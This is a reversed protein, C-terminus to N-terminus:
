KLEKIKKILLPLIKKYDGVVGLDAIDFIPANKDTNVAIIYESEDMGITHHATGSIGFAFYLKPKVTKGSFGVQREKDLWGKDVNPRSTGIEGGLLKGLNKLLEFDEQREIGRGGAILCEAQTINFSQTNLEQNELIVIQLDEDRWDLEFNIVQGNRNPDYNNESGTNGKLTAMQPFTNECCYTIIEDGRNAPRTMLLNLTEKEIELSTCDSVLGLNMRTAVRAALDNGIPTASMLLIRPHFKCIIESFCSTYYEIIFEDLIKNDIYLVVDAGHYIMKQNLEKSLTGLLVVILKEHSIESLQRAKELTKISLNTIKTNNHEIFVYIDKYKEM